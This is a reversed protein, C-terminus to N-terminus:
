LRESDFGRASPGSPQRLVSKELDWEATTNMPLYTLRQSKVRAHQTDGASGAVQGSFSSHIIIFSHQIKLDKHTNREEM